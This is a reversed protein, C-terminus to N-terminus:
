LKALAVETAKFLALTKSGVHLGLENISRTTIVATVTGSQTEIDVESVVDGFVIGKIRGKFQNRANIAKITM